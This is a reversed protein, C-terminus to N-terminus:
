TPSTLGRDVRGRRTSVFVLSAVALVLGAFRWERITISSLLVIVLIGAAVPILNRGPLRFPEGDARVDRRHLEFAAATCGLYALLAALNALVVLREFADTAALVVTLAAQAVIAVHPTHFRRHVSALARPAYGDRAFAFLARPMALAMGSLFGFTSFVVALSFLRAGWPGMVTAAADSLPTASGVLRPGLIGQVVFQLAIFLVTVMGMGLLLARPVTRSSERVEGSPVLASEFGAFVFVLVMAARAFDHKPPMAAPTLYPAHMGFAGIAVLLVLPLLKVVTAAAILRTGQKVGRVNIWVLVAYVAVLLGIRGAESQFGPVVVAFNDAFIMAVAPVATAGITWVLVGVLFGAYPGFATEVYAYPGGTMSVRSGAEAMSLVVLGMAVACILYALPAAAGLLGAVAPDSPIRFIGGGIVLNVVSAALGWVGVDRVLSSEITARQSM